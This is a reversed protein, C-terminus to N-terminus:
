MASAGPAANKGGSLWLPSAGGEDDAQWWGWKREKSGKKRINEKQYDQDERPLRFKDHM